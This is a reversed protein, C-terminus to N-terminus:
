PNSGQAEPCEHPGGGQGTPEWVTQPTVHHVDGNDSKQHSKGQMYSTAKGEEAKRLLEATKSSSILSAEKGQASIKNKAGM